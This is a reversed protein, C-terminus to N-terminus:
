ELSRWDGGWTLGHKAALDSITPHFIQKIATSHIETPTSISPTAKRSRAAFEQRKPTPVNLSSRDESAPNAATGSAPLITAKNCAIAPSARKRPM